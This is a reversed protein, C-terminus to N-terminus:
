VAGQFYKRMNMWGSMCLGICSQDLPLPPPHPTIPPPPSPPLSCRLSTTSSQLWMGVTRTKCAQSICCPPFLPSRRCPELLGSFGPGSFSTQSATFTFGLHCHLNWFSPSASVTSWRGTHAAPASHLQGLLYAKHATPLFAPPAPSVLAMPAWILTM